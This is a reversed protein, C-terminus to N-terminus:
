MSMNDALSTTTYPRYALPEWCAARPSYGARMGNKTLDKDVKFYVSVCLAIINMQGESMYRQVLKPGKHGAVSILQSGM